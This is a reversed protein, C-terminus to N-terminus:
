CVPCVLEVAHGVAARLVLLADAATVDGSDNVDCVCLACVATGVSARLVFLADGATPLGPPGSDVPDGCAGGAALTTTTSTTPPLTTTTTPGPLTTTTTPAAITTTTILITTTTTTTTTPEDSVIRFIEGGLDVIYLRGLGDEAFSAIENISLGGGPALEATRDVLGTYNSGDFTEPASGDYILSWIRETAYDAFFYHGQIEAIPGRYVYGGTVAFGQFAGDGRTYDYIPDIAGEPRPGGVVPNEITGERLRWGYNEGGVSAAPQVNIEERSSQGVDGFYFNGNARDFSARWPNRLGYSWIEDDGTKNVFPNSAPIAYNRAADAPFDDGDVDLRLMKGLLNSTIDQANGIGVTHGSSSDNSGGGDGSAVYLYGDPGFGLWGGNHNTQPQDYGLVPLASQPDAVDPDASVQYRRIETDGGTATLNVYFFGNVDYDPHFALGLLGQENGTALGGLDLFDTAHITGSALDLIRIRGSHQEAIFLRETDGAPATAYVPRDLGDAVRVTSLAAHAAPGWALLAGLLAARLVPPIQRSM